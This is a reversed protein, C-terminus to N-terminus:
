LKKSIHFKWKLEPMGAKKCLSYYRRAGSYKPSKKVQYNRVPIVGTSAKKKCSVRASADSCSNAPDAKYAALIKIQSTAIKRNDKDEM